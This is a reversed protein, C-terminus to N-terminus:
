KAIKLKLYEALSSRPIKWIRGIRFAKIKGEKLLRYAANKGIMLADCLEELTMLSQELNEM